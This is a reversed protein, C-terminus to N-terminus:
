SQPDKWGWSKALLLVTRCPYLSGWCTSCCPMSGENLVFTPRERVELMHEALIEREAEIRLLVADPDPLYEDFAEHRDLWSVSGDSSGTRMVFWGDPGGLTLHGGPNPHHVWEWPGRPLSGAVMEM